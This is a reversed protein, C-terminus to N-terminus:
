KMSCGRSVPFNGDCSCQLLSWPTAMLTIILQEISCTRKYSSQEPKQLHFLILVVCTANTMKIQCVHAAKFDVWFTFEQSLLLLTLRLECIKQILRWPEVKDANIRTSQQTVLNVSIKKKEFRISSCLVSFCSTLFFFAITCFDSHYFIITLWINKCAESQNNHVCTRACTHTQARCAWKQISLSRQYREQGRHRHLMQSSPATVTDHLPHSTNGLPSLLEAGSVRINGSESPGGGCLASRGALRDQWCVLSDPFLYLLLYNFLFFLVSVKLLISWLWSLSSLVSNLSNFWSLIM